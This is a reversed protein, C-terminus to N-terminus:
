IKLLKNLCDNYEMNKQAKVKDYNQHKSKTYRENVKLKSNVTNLSRWGMLELGVEGIRIHCSPTM